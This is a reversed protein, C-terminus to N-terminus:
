RVFEVFLNFENDEHDLIHENELKETSLEMYRIDFSDGFKEKFHKILMEQLEFGSVRMSVYDRKEEKKKRTM